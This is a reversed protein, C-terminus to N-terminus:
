KISEIQRKLEFKEERLDIIDRQLMAVCSTCIRALPLDEIWLQQLYNAGCPSDTYLRTHKIFHMEVLDKEM